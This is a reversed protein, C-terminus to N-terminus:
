RFSRVGTRPRRSNPTPRSPDVQDRATVENEQFRAPGVELGLPVKEDVGVVLRVHWEVAQVDVRQPPQRQPIVDRRCLVAGALDGDDAVRRLGFDQIEAVQLAEVCVAAIATPESTM